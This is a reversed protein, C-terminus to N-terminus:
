ERNIKDCLVIVKSVPRTLYQCKKRDKPYKKNGILVKVSRVINDHSPYREVVRGLKWDNRPANEDSVLVISDLKIEPVSKAWKQRLQLTYLYEKRWRKWFDNAVQQVVRWRKRSYIDADEFTDPPPLVVESKMTLLMNPSLPVQEASVEGLPRSNVIAMAEYLTTRWMATSLRGGHKNGLGKMINRITRIHREWSGGMNSSHPPNFLFKISVKEEFGKSLEKAAGVFNSGQDCHIAQIPGRIALVIRLANIFSDTSMDELLELHIARSAMCTVILGYRKIEKRGDKAMFPGFCDVGCYTFPPAEALRSSPLTAMQPTQAKGRIKLCIVCSRTHLSVTSKGKVIWFGCSRIKALTQAAGQHATKAHYHRIILKTLHSKRPLLIPHKEGFTLTTCHQLRGGVRLLGNQDLFPILKSLPSSMAVMNGKELVKIESQYYERQACRVLSKLTQNEIDTQSKESVTESVPCIKLKIKSIIKLTKSLSSFRSIRADISAFQQQTTHLSIRKVESDDSAIETNPQEPVKSNSSWLFDPGRFWNSNALEKPSMGRSAHDAPNIASPVYFWKDPCSRDHIQGVRNAVFTHYRKETNKIYGLVVKSDTYYFQPIDKLDLEQTIKQALVTAGSAAQLELRPITHPKLPTVRAKSALLSVHVQNKTNVLRLYTCHGYGIQSADSFTHLETQKVKGFEEPKSCRSIKVTQLEPLTRKWDQWEQFIGEQSSLPEDWEKRQKCLEQLVQKGKLTVPAILGLPDFISAVNSLIGRRTDPKEKLRVEFQFCDIEANWLVGLTRETPLNDFQLDLGEMSKAQESRPIEMMVEPKNSLWKHLRVNGHNCIKVADKIVKSAEKHSSVSLLGDDVYFNKTIFQTASEDIDKDDEYRRALYRLGYTACAPSSTAGFLHVKMRYPVVSGENDFWLFRFYDRHEPAVRFQHFMREIDCTIAVPKQRFRLLIGLLSNLQDPGQLLFDNLSKGETKASGDFVIRIKEPKKPHFVGFHPIYWTDSNNRDHLPVLEAENKALIDDIFAKYQKEYCLSKRFKKLLGAFRTLATDYSKNKFPKSRFPLPMTVYGDVVKIEKEMLDLFMKDEISLSENQSEVDKFDYELLSLINAAQRQSSICKFSVHKREPNHPLDNKTCSVVHTISPSHSDCLSRQGMVTWGVDTLIGFPECDKGAATCRPIFVQPCNYGILLGVPITSDAVMEHTIHQLHPWQKIEQISPIHTLKAPIEDRTFMDPMHITKQSQYGRIRLNSVKQCQIKEDSSTMTTLKLTHGTKETSIRQALSSTIFSTDSQSDLMAYVLIEKFPENVSSVWVPVTMSMLNDANKIEAKIHNSLNQVPTFKSGSDSNKTSEKDSPQEQVPENDQKKTFDANKNQLRNNCLNHVATPHSKDCKKCNFEQKCQKYSHGKELCNFCLSNEKVFDNQKSAEAKELFFCKRTPHNSKKCYLCNTKEFKDEENKDAEVQQSNSNIQFSIKGKKPVSEKSEKAQTKCDPTKSEHKPALPSCLLEAEEAIFNCLDSFKASKANKVKMDRVCRIWGRMIGNPLKALIRRCERSDDLINLDPVTARAAECQQLFDAFSRLGEGDSYKITPWKEIKERFADAVTQPDGYRQKLLAKAKEYANESHLQFYGNIAEAAPGAVYRRLYHLKEVSSCQKNGVLGEFSVIWDAYKLPDGAFVFPEPPPLRSAQIASAIANALESNAESIRSSNESPTRSSPQLGVDRNGYQQRDISPQPKPAQNTSPSHRSKTQSMLQSSLLVDRNEEELAQYYVEQKRKEATIAAKLKIEKLRNRKKRELTAIEEELQQAELEALLETEKALQNAQAEKIRIRLMSSSSKSSAVDSKRSKARESLEEVSKLCDNSGKSRVSQESIAQEAREIIFQIDHTIRDIEISLPKDPETGLSKLQNYLTHISELSDKLEQVISLLRTANVKNVTNNIESLLMTNVESQVRIEDQLKKAIKQAQIRSSARKASNTDTQLTGSYMSTIASLHESSNESLNDVSIATAGEVSM